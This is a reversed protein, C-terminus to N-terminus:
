SVTLTATAVNSAYINNALDAAYAKIVTGNDFASYNITGSVVAATNSYRPDSGDKTYYEVAGSTNSAINITSNQNDDTLIPANTKNAANVAAYVADAKTGIVFADHLIRGEVLDGNIGPPDKHIKYDMLKAPGMIASKHTILWYVGTPLWGSPVKKVEMNDIMGVSGKEVAKRGLEENSLFDPNQKLAKYMATTVFLTRGTEPVLANDLVETCDMLLGTITNKNPDASLGKITGAKKTWVAFRYKDMYPNVVEDIERKLSEAAKKINFQEKANGKDITYTFAKDDTMTVIQTTDGLEAPNGYRATGSRTYNGLPATDVSPIIVGSVGDFTYDANFAGATLSKKKFREAVKSSYKTALNIAM